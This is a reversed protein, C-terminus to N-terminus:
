PHLLLLLPLSTRAQPPECAAEQRALEPYYVNRAPPTARNVATRKRVAIAQCTLKADVKKRVARIKAEACKV